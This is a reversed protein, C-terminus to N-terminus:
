RLVFQALFDTLSFLFYFREFVIDLVRDSMIMKNGLFQLTSVLLDIRRLHM